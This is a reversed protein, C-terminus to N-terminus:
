PDVGSVTDDFAFSRYLTSTSIIMMSAMTAVLVFLACTASLLQIKVKRHVKKLNWGKLKEDVSGKLIHRAGLVQSANPM